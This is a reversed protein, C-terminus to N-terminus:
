LSFYEKIQQFTYDVQDKQQQKYWNITWEIAQTSNLKPQWNLEKKAKEISLKLLGAEHPQKTNSEDLWKGKGWKEIATEVLQQVPLHDGPLPGINYSTSFLEPKKSLNAALLLYAGIPELVHQWPRVAKPNRVKINENGLM